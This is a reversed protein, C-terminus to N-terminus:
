RAERTIEHGRESEVQLYLINPFYNPSQFEKDCEREWALCPVKPLSDRNVEYIQHKQRRELKIIYSCIYLFYCQNYRFADSYNKDVSIM